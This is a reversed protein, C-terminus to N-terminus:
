KIVRFFFKASYFGFFVCIIGLINSLLINTVFFKYEGERFLNFSELTFTSFTTFAGLFGIMIFNRIEVSVINIDFIEYFFGILFSGCLNIVLTGWPFIENVFIYIRKSMVYRALTGLGGGFLILGIKLM